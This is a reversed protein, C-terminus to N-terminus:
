LLLSWENISEYFYLENFSIQVCDYLDKKTSTEHLVSGCRANIACLM